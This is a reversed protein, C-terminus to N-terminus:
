VLTLTLGNKPYPMAFQMASKKVFSVGRWFIAMTSIPASLPYRMLSIAFKRAWLGSKAFSLKWVRSGSLFRWVVWFDM